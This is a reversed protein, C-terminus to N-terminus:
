STANESTLRRSVERSLFFHIVSITMFFAGYVVAFHYIDHIITWANIVCSAVLVLLIIALVGCSTKLFLGRSFYFLFITKLMFMSIIFFGFAVGLFLVLFILLEESNTMIQMAIAFSYLLELSAPIAIIVVGLISAKRQLIIARLVSAFLFLFSFLIFVCMVKPISTFLIGCFFLLCFVSDIKIYECIMKKM